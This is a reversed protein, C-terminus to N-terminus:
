SQHKTNLRDLLEGLMEVFSSTPVMCLAFAHGAVAGLFANQLRPDRTIEIHLEMSTFSLILNSIPFFSPYMKGLKRKEKHENAIQLWKKIQRRFETKKMYRVCLPLDKNLALHIIVIYYLWDVVNM